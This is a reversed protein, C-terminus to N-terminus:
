YESKEKNMYIYMYLIYHIDKHSHMYTHVYIFVTMGSFNDSHWLSVLHIRQM